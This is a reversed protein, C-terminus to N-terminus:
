SPSFFACRDGLMMILMHYTSWQFYSITIIITLTKNELNKIIWLVRLYLFIFFSFCDYQLYFLSLVIIFSTKNKKKFSPHQQSKGLIGSLFEHMDRRWICIERRKIDEFISDRLLKLLFHRAHLSGIDKLSKFRRYFSCHTRLDKFNGYILWKNTRM